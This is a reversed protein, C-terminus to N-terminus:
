VTAPFVGTFDAIRIKDGDIPTFDAVTDGGSDLLFIDGDHGGHLYDRGSGGYLTDDDAGGYIVDDGRGGYLIDDGRKM